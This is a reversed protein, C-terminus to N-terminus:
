VFQTLLYTFWQCSRRCVPQWHFQRGVLMTSDEETLM